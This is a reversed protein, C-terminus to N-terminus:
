AKSAPDAFLSKALNIMAPNPTNIELFYDLQWKQTKAAQANTPKDWAPYVRIGRKGEKQSGSIIGKELLVSKPLVFQGLEDGNRVSIIILDFADDYHFPETIGSSNRKWLTVFQGTKKPTIKAARFIVSLNNIVVRSALYEASESEALLESCELELYDYVSEKAIQFDHSSPKNM